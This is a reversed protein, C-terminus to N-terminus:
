IATQRVLIDLAFWYASSLMMDVLWYTDLLDYYICAATEGPQSNHASIGIIKTAHAPGPDHCLSIRRPSSM